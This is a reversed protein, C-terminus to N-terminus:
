LNDNRNTKPSVEPNSQIPSKGFVAESVYVFTNNWFPTIRGACSHLLSFGLLGAGAGVGIEATQTALYAAGVPGGILWGGVAGITGGVAGVLFGVWVSETKKRLKRADKKFIEADRELEDTIALIKEANEQNELLKNLNAVM